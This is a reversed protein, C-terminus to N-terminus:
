GNKPIRTYRPCPVHFVILQTSNIVQREAYIHSTVTSHDRWRQKIWRPMLEGLQTIYWPVGAIPRKGSADFQTGRSDWPSRTLYHDRVHRSAHRSVYLIAYVRWDKDTIKLWTHICGCGQSIKHIQSFCTTHETLFWTFILHGVNFRLM